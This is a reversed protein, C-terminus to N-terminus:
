VYQCVSVGCSRKGIALIVVAIALALDAIWAQLGVLGPIYIQRGFPIEALVGHYLAAEEPFPNLIEDDVALEIGVFRGIVAHEVAHREGLRQDRQVAVLRGLDSSCVDSSWDSIRM